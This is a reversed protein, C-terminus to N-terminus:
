SKKGTGSEGQILVTSKTKAILGILRCIKKIQESKGILSDFYKDYSM